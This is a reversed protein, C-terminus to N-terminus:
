PLFSADTELRKAIDDAAQPRAFLYGQAYYCGLNRLAGLQERTEIGEAIMALELERALNAVTRVIKMSAADVLMAHVFSRDIKLHDIPFRHLYGLSSYGTGFDDIALSVGVQKLRRLSAAAQQPDHMLLSETLELNVNPLDIGSASLAEIIADVDKLSALQRGSVNVSIYLPPSNPHRARHIHQFRRLVLPAERLAWLGIPVITGSREAFGIFDGPPVLGRTPHQWRLLAEFGVPQGNSLDVIPQYHLVLERRELAAELDYQRQLNDLVRRKDIDYDSTRDESPWSSSGGHLRAEHTARFRELVVRLFVNLIPDASEVRARFYDRPVVIVETEVM